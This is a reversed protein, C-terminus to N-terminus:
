FVGGGCVGWVGGGAGARRRKEKGERGIGLREAGKLDQKTKGESVCERECKMEAECMCLCVWMSM